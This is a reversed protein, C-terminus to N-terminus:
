IAAKRRLRAAAGDGFKERYYALKREFEPSGTLRDAEAKKAALKLDVLYDLVYKQRAAGELKQPM